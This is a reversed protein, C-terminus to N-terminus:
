PLAQGLVTQVERVPHGFNADPCGKVVVKISFGLGNATRCRAELQLNHVFLVLSHSGVLRTLYAEVIPLVPRTVIAIRLLRSVYAVVLQPEVGAVQAVDILIAKQIYHFALLIHQLILVNHVIGRLDLLDNGLHGLHRINTDETHPIIGGAVLCGCSNDGLGAGGQPGVIHDVIHLCMHIGLVLLQNSAGDNHIIQLATGVAFCITWGGLRIEKFYLPAISPPAAAPSTNAGNLALRDLENYSKTLMNCLKSISTLLM